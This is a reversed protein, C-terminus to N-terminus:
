LWNISDLGGTLIRRYVYRVNCGVTCNNTFNVKYVRLNCYILVYRNETRGFVFYM